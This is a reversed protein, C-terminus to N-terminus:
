AGAGEGALGAHRLIEYLPQPVAVPQARRILFMRGNWGVELVDGGGPQAPIRVTKLPFGEMGPMPSPQTPKLTNKATTKTTNITNSM